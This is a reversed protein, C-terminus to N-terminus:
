LLVGIKKVTNWNRTTIDNGYFKKLIGMAEPTSNRSLDLVGYVTHDIIDLLKFSGDDSTWPLDPANKPIKKLFIVYLRIDTTIETDKFPDSLLLKQIEESNRVLVPVPFGYTNKLKSAITNEIEDRSKGPGEFVINGSNLLTKINTYGMKGIVNRLDAMPIKHHGGVNIGRLFAAYVRKKAVEKDM